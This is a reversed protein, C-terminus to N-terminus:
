WDVAILYKPCPYRDAVIQFTATEDAPVTERDLYASLTKTPRGADTFCMMKVNVYDQSRGTSNRVEGVIRDPLENVELMEFDIVGREGPDRAPRGDLSFDFVADSPLVADDLYVVGFAVDGPALRVPALSDSNHGSALLSGDASRVALSVDIGALAAPSNNRIVFPVSDRYGGVAITELADSEGRPLVDLATGAITAQSHASNAASDTEEAAATPTIGLQEELEAVRTQLAEITAAADSDQASAPSMALPMPALFCVLLLAMPGTRVRFM